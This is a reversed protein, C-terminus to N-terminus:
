RRTRLEAILARIHAPDYDETNVFSREVQIMRRLSEDSFGKLM